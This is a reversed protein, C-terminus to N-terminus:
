LLLDADAHAFDEAANRAQSANAIYGAALEEELKKRRLDAVFKEVASRILTSRNISLENLAWETENFLPAPLDVVVKKTREAMAPM